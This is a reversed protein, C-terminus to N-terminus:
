NNKVHPQKINPHKVNEARKNTKKFLGKRDRNEIWNHNKLDIKDYLLVTQM